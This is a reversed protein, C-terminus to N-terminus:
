DPLFQVSLNCDATVSAAKYKIIGGPAIGAYAFQCNQNVPFDAHYGTEPFTWVEASTGHPVPTVIVPNVGGNTAGQAGITGHTGSPDAVSVTVSYQNIEFEASLICDGSTIPGATGTNGTMTITGCEASSLQEVSGPVLHYGTQPELTFTAFQGDEVMGDDDLTIYGYNIGSAVHVQHQVLNFALDIQCDDLVNEAQLMVGAGFPNSVPGSTQCTSTPLIVAQHSTNPLATFVAQQMPYTVQLPNQSTVTGNPGSNVTVTSTKAKFTVAVACSGTVPATKWILGSDHTVGGCGTITDVAYGTNPAVTLEAPQNYHIVQSPPSITGNSGVVSATVTPMGQFNATLTCSSTSTTSLTGGTESVGSATGACGTFGTFTYGSNATASYVLGSTGPPCTTVTGAEASCGAPASVRTISGGTGDGPTNNTSVARAVQVQDVVEIRLSRSNDAHNSDPSSDPASFAAVQILALSQNISTDVSSSKRTLTYERQAGAALTGINEVLKSSGSGSNCASGAGHDFCSIRSVTPGMLTSATPVFERIRVNNAAATGKNSVRLKFTVNGTTSQQLVDGVIPNGQADLLEVRLDAMSPELGDAFLYGATGPGTTPPFANPALGAHCRLWQVGGDVRQPVLAGSTLVYNLATVGPMAESGLGTNFHMIEGNADGVSLKWNGSGAAGAYYDECLAPELLSLSLTPPNVGLAYVAQEALPLTLGGMQVGLGAPTAKVCNGPSLAGPFELVGFGISAVDFWGYDPNFGATCLRDGPVAALAQPEMSAFELAQALTSGSMGVAALAALALLSTKFRKRSRVPNCIADM